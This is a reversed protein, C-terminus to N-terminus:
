QCGLHVTGSAGLSTAWQATASGDFTITLSQGGLFAHTITGTPCGGACRTVAVENSRTRDGLETSWLGDITHCQTSADWAITYSGQHEITRGRPGTGTSTTEVALRHAGGDSTYVGTADVDLTAGNVQLGTSTGHVALAGELSVTIALDLEGTVHALGRPGTCDDYVAKITAGTHTVTACSAPQYRASLNAAIRAAAVEASVGILAASDTGDVTAMLVNGEASATEASDIASEPSDADGADNRDVCAATFLSTSLYAFSLLTRM